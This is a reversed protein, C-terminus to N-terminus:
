HEDPLVPYDLSFRDDVWRQLDEFAPPDPIRDRVSPKVRLKEMLQSRNVSSFIDGNEVFLESVTKYAWPSQFGMHVYLDSIFDRGILLTGTFQTKLGLNEYQYAFLGLGEKFTTPQIGNIELPDETNVLFGDLKLEDNVCIYKMVYGRWCATTRSHSTIGFDEPAHLGRGNVGVLVYDKEMYRIEDPIQATM